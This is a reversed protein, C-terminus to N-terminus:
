WGEYIMVSVANLQGRVERLGDNRGVLEGASPPHDLPPRAELTPPPALPVVDPELHPPLHGRAVVPQHSVVRRFCECFCLEQIQLIAAVQGRYRIFFLNHHLGPIHKAEVRVVPPQIPSPQSILASLVAYLYCSLTLISSGCDVVLTPQRKRVEASAVCHSGCWSVTSRQVGAWLQATGDLTSWHHCCNYTLVHVVAYETCNM